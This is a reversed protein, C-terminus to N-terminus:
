AAKDKGAVIIEDNAKLYRVGSLVGHLAAGPNGDKGVFGECRLGTIELNAFINPNTNRKAYGQPCLGNAILANIADIEGQLALNIQRYEPSDTPGDLMAFKVAGKKPDILNIYGPAVLLPLLANEKTIEDGLIQDDGIRLARINILRGKLVAGVTGDKKTYAETRISGINVDAFWRDGDNKTRDRPWRDKLGNLLEKVPKGSIIADVTQYVTKGDADKDMISLTCAGYKPGKKPTIIKIEKIQARTYLVTDFYKTTQTTM